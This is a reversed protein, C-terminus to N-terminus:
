GSREANQVAAFVVRLFALALRAEPDVGVYQVNVGLLGTIKM